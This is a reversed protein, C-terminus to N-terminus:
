KNMLEKNRELERKVLLEKRKEILGSERTVKYFKKYDFNKITFKGGYLAGFGMTGVAVISNRVIADAVNIKSFISNCAKNSYESGWDRKKCSIEESYYHEPYFGSETIYVAELEKEKKDLNTDQIELLKVDEDFYAIALTNDNGILIEPDDIVSQNNVAVMSHESIPGCGSCVLIFLSLVTFAITRKM